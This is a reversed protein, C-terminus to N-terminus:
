TVWSVGRICDQDELEWADWDGEADRERRAVTFGCHQVEYVTAWPLQLCVAATLELLANSHNRSRGFFTCCSQHSVCHAGKDAPLGAEPIRVLRAVSRRVAEGHTVVLVNQGAHRDAITDLAATYRAHAEETSEPYVPPRDSVSSWQLGAMDKSTIEQCPATSTEAVAGIEVTAAAPM